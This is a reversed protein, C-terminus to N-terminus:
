DDEGKKGDGHTRIYEDVAQKKLEEERARSDGIIREAEDDAAQKQAAARAKASERVAYVIQWILVGVLPIVILIAYGYPKSFFAQLQALFGSKGVVKGIVDSVPVAVQDEQAVADGKTRVYWQGDELYPAVTVRHTVNYGEVEGFGEPAVFTIVDGVSIVGEPSSLQADSYEDVIIVDGRDYTGTMSDTLIVMTRYGFLSPDHGTATQVIITVLCGVAFLFAITVLADIILVPVSKKRKKRAEDAGGIKGM